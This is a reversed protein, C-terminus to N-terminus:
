RISRHNTSRSWPRALPAPSSATSCQAAALITMGSVALTGAGESELTKSTSQIMAGASDAVPGPESPSSPLIIHELIRNKLTKNGKGSTCISIDM